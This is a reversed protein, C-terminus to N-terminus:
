EIIELNAYKLSLTKIGVSDFKITIFASAFDTVGLTVVGNGFHNHHVKTGKKYRAFDAQTLTKKNETQNGLQSNNKTGSVNVINVHSSMKQDLSNSSYSSNLFEDFGSKELTSREVISSKTQPKLEDFMETLFRSILTYDQCHKEFNFKIKPRTLILRNKARTIAVYMLRREEELENIDPSNIARSLPFLGDNLGVIFVINFELGKAAHVTLLSVFNDEDQMTDIDRMLTISQLFEDITADENKSTFEAVSKIFDDINLCKNEDEETKNGIADKIGVIKILYEVFEQLDMSEKKENLDLFLDRVSDLKAKLSGKINYKSANCIVEMLPVNEKNSIETIDAISVDGIGKKPFGLMRTTAETDNPNTVLYLYATTDKIEKREFFKFGGYIRYPINYTLLKEELIRSLSNVRMLVAIDSYNYGCNTVLNEIKEALFEAEEIDNYTQKVEIDLGDSNETWLNKDIRCSNNKILKNALTVIKKTSRYNQELKFIKCNEFDKTFQKVNGVQAGRWSYICQDEDGVACINKYKNALLKILEYQATNTDQFEDVFIYKFRDQYYELIDPFKKFLDYTKVLLDDFDLANAKQLESEYETFASTIIECKKKDHIYKSYIEPSMLNNKANSIHWSITEANISNKESNNARLIVPNESMIRKIVRSKETDGYISFSKTFELMDINRRLIKSCMAHFTCIWMNDTNGVMREIREKMENAAKNTFTIALINYPSIGLEKIMHAIKHTIMRTKGSGAGATVLIAGELTSAPAYQEENLNKLIESEVM